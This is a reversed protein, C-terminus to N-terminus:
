LTLFQRRYAHPSLQIHKQFQRRLAEEDGYGCALAIAKLPKESRQLWQMAHELRLREIYQGPPLGFTHKFKRAFTRESMSMQKALRAVSLPEELHELVWPHLTDFLKQPDKHQLDLLLSYQQQSGQRILPLVLHRATRIAVERGRDQSVMALSMDIGSSVGASTWIHQQQLYIPAPDVAVNPYRAALEACDAWHTVARLGNLLGLEALVFAGTCIAGVRTAREVLPQLAHMATPSDIALRAGLGGVVLLTDIPTHQMQTFGKASVSVLTDSQCSGAKEAVLHLSYGSAKLWRNSDEFVQVPGTLDLLKFPPFLAFVIHHEM